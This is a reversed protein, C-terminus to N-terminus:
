ATYNETDNATIPPKMSELRKIAEEYLVQEEKTLKTTATIQGQVEVRNRYEPHHTKLYLAVARFDNNKIATFLQLEAIDAMFSRGFDMALDVAKAFKLDKKKWEYFATRGVGVKLCASEVVPKHKLEEILQKKITASRM